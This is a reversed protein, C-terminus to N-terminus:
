ENRKNIINEATIVGIRPLTTLEEIESTNIDVVEDNTGILTLNEIRTYYHDKM